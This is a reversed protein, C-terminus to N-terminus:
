TGPVRIVVKSTNQPKSSVIAKHPFRSFNFLMVLTACLNPSKSGTDTQSYFETQEQNHHWSSMKRKKTVTAVPM